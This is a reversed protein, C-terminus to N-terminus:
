KLSQPGFARTGIAETIARQSEIVILELSRDENGVGVSGNQTARNNEEILMAFAGLVVFEANSRSAGLLEFERAAPEAVAPDADGVLRDDIDQM